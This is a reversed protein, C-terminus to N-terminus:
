GGDVSRLLLSGNTGGFAFANAMATAVQLRRASNPVYDLDLEPDPHELNITPPLVGDTISRAAVLVNLSGAAATLHGTMSKPSSIALKRAHEGFVTKLAATESRDNGPTGTGHAVVYDVSAPAVGADRLAVEMSLDVGAGDPPADTIRYANLSAGYGALEAYIRAGRARASALDELVVMVAGEGIVFGSRERDFPRSAREPQDNYRDTLAGLLSFGLVDFYSTLADYGGAIMLRADGDQILKAAEGIAQASSCCATSLSLSPGQCNTLMAIVALPTNQARVTVRHPEHRYLRRGASEDMVVLAEVLEELDPRGVSGGVAIGRQEPEYEGDRLGADTLAELAAGVGFGGARSLYRALRQDPLREAPDFNRVLGAIQVSFGDPPYLDIRRVGSRGEVLSSWTAEATNGVPTIAGLGTIAVRRRARGSM